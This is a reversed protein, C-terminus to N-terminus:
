GGLKRLLAPDLDKLAAQYAQTKPLLDFDGIDGARVLEPDADPEDVWQFCYGEMDEIFFGRVDSPMACILLHQVVLARMEDDDVSEPVLIHALEHLVYAVDYDDRFARIWIVYRGEPLLYAEAPGPACGLPDADPAERGVLIEVGFDEACQRVVDLPSNM